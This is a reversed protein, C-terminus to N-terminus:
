FILKLLLLLLGSIKKFVNEIKDCWLSFKLRANGSKQEKKKIM